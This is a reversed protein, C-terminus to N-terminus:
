FEDEDVIVEPYFHRTNYLIIKNGVMTQYYEEGDCRDVWVGAVDYNTEAILGKISRLAKM